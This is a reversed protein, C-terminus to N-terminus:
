YETGDGLNLQHTGTSCLMYVFPNLDVCDTGFQDHRRHCPFMNSATERVSRPEEQSSGGSGVM